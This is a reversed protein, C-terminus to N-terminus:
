DNKCLGLSARIWMDAHGETDLFTPGERLSRGGGGREQMVFHEHHVRAGSQLLHEKGANVM